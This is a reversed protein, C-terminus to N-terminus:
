AAGQEAADAPLSATRHRDRLSIVAPLAFLAATLCTIEGIVATLGFSQIAQNDATVLTAYGIITTVSCLAVAGGSSSLAEEVSCTQRYRQYLNVAYDVGIGFTIPLVAFNVFNLKLSLAQMAGAGWLVGLTLSAIVWAGDRLSRMVLVTLLAVALFSLMATFRGDDTIAQFIDTTLVIQGAVMAEKDVRHAAERVTRAHQIQARGNSSDTALTPFVLVIRGRQGDKEFFARTLREPVDALSVPELRTNRRLRRIEPPLKAEPRKDLISFIERLLELKRPQDKPLFQQLTVVSEITSREGEQEKAREVAAAVAQAEAPSRTLVVTPTQYSQLVADVHKDWFGRGNNESSRSGLKTFDYLIPEQAFVYGAYISAGALAVTILVPVLPKKTVLQAFPGALWGVVRGRRPPTLDGFPWYREQLGILAPMLAYTTTWCIVMGFFGMFAFQNFGRFSVFGLSGYSAAAAGGAAFTAIWTARLALPLARHVDSGHRREEIYRALLIIGANIGNGVIISGLFATNPNLYHIVGRSLAFTLAVGTFLPLVLLPVSRLTRYYLFLALGVASLTLASSLALDRVLAEQSEILGKIEGGYGVQISPHFSKPNLEKVAGDVAAFIRQDDELSVAAGPPSVLMVLTHGNEGALYGDPYRDLRAYASKIRGVAEDLDPAPSKDAEDALDLMLPNAQAIKAKLADRAAVLDKVEAYLAGHQDLFEREADVRWHVNAVLSPPVEKLKAALADVFREGAKLDDTRVVINLHSFGGIRKELEQLAVAAPAGQPLLERLDTRLDGYLRVAAPLSAFFALTAILALTWPRRLSLAAWWQWFRATRSLQEM